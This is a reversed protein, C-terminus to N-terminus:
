EKKSGGQRRFDDLYMIMALICRVFTYLIGIVIIFELLSELM